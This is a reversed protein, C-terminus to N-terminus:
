EVILFSKKFYSMEPIDKKDINGLVTVFMETNKNFIMKAVQNVKESCVDNRLQKRQRKTLRFLKGLRMYDILNVHSLNTMKAPLKEDEFYELNKRYELILSEDVFGGVVKQVEACIVELTPKIKEKSTEFSINFLSTDKFNSIDVNLRYVLGENRLKLFLNGQSGSLYRALFTYNYNKGFIDQEAVDLKFSMLVSVKEINKNVVLLSSKKDVNASEFYNNPKEFDTKKPIRSVFFSDILRKVKTYCASTVISIIFNNGVFYKEKFQKIDDFTIANINDETKGVIDSSVITKSLAQNFNKIYVDYSEDDLCMKLEEKIVGKETSVFEDDIVSNMLIDYAFELSEKLLKNTRFFKLILYDAGTSANLFTIKNRDREVEENTRSTTKKFLTHELFHATGMKEDCAAGVCFGVEVASCNNQKSKQYILVGGNKLKIIKGKM